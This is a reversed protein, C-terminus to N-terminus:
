RNEIQLLELKVAQARVLNMLDVLAIEKASKPRLGM